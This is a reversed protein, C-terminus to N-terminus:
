RSCVVVVLYPVCGILCKWENDPFLTSCYPQFVPQTFSTMNAMLTQLSELLPSWTWGRPKIDLLGAGDLFGWTQVGKSEVLQAIRELNNMAGIAGASCGGFLLRAGPTNGLGQTQMLSQVVATPIRSGRFTFNYTADSAPADGSWLDSTCYKVYIRNATGWASTGDTAFIGGQAFSTAWQKPTTSSMYYGHTAYREQCSNLDWCFMSSAALRADSLAVCASAERRFRM